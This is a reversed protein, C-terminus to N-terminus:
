GSRRRMEAPWEGTGNLLILRPGYDEVELVTVSAPSLEIRHLFDSPMGLAHTVLMRLVDGHSVVAVLSGQRAHRERLKELEGLSRSLVEAMTEGGPIRSGSRFENFRRWDPVQELEAITKGTWTGFDVENFGAAPLIELGQRAGIPQATEIARELPSSYLGTLCLQGLREALGLAQQRGAENLHVGPRRGAISQGVPDCLAHRILLFTTMEPPVKPPGFLV